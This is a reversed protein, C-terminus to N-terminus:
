LSGVPLRAAVKFGGGPRPGAELVGGLAEARERMGAIGNGPRANGGIGDDSVEVRLEDGYTLRVEARRAHAHRTVNTLAEQVIRYAALEVPAPLPGPSTGPEFRVELGGARVGDVLTGLESLHPAPALPADAGNRLVDLATRLEGLADHSAHKITALAPRAQDPHEDLLHLAVSAQVNILSINHALVDHLEQALQLRQESAQRESAEQALRQQEASQERRVRVVESVTLVLLLWGAVLALHLWGVGNAARPDIVEAVFFAVYGVGALIWTERRRLQVGNYLAVVISLFVPGYPYGLAVYVSAAAISAVIATLPWRDRVALAAPGVLLLVVALADIGKRDSQNNAAGFSGAVQFVGVALATLVIAGRSTSRMPNVTPSRDSGTTVWPVYGTRRECSYTRARPPSRVRVSGDSASPNLGEADALEAVRALAGV